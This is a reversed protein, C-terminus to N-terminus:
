RAASNRAASWGQSEMTRLPRLDMSGYRDFVSAQMAEAIGSLVLFSGTRACLDGCVRLLTPAALNAGVLDFTGRVSQVGGVLFCTVEDPEPASAGAQNLGLNRRATFVASSDIDLAVTFGAGLKKAAIALVGTGTGVDLMSPPSATHAKLAMAQEVLALAMLTTPHDGSGFSPGPDIILNIRDTPAYPAEWLPVVRLRRGVERSRVNGTWGTAHKRIRKTM